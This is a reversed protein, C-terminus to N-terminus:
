DLEKDSTTNMVDYVARLYLYHPCKNTKQSDYCCGNAIRVLVSTTLTNNTNITEVYANVARKTLIEMCVENFKECIIISFTRFMNRAMERLTPKLRLLEAITLRKVIFEHYCFTGLGLECKVIEMKQLLNAGEKIIKSSFEPLVKSSEDISKKM